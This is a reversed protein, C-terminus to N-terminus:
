ALYRSVKELDKSFTRFDKAQSNKVGLYVGLGAAGGLAPAGRVKLEKIAKWLVPLDKINLFVLKGPLMTQDIIRIANNKWEITKLNM